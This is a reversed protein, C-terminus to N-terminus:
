KGGKDPDSKHGNLANMKEAVKRAFSLRDEIFRRKFFLLAFTDYLFHILIPVLLNDTTEYIGGLYAGIIMAIFFYTGTIFHCLGFIVSTVWLGTNPQIAGRFLIEEGIGASLALAVIQWKKAQLLYIELVEKIKEYIKQLPPFSRGLKSTSFIAILLIPLTGGIGWVFSVADFKIQFPFPTDLTFYAIGAGLLALGLEFFFGFLFFKQM